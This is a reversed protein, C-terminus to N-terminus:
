QGGMILNCASTPVSSRLLNWGFLLQRFECQKSKNWKIFALRIIYPNMNMYGWFHGRFVTLRPHGIVNWTSCIRIVDSPTCWKGIEYPSRGQPAQQCRPCRHCQHQWAGFRSARFDMLNKVKITIAIKLIVLHHNSLKKIKVGVQQSSGIQSINKSHTSVVLWIFKAPKCFVKHFLLLWQFITVFTSDM